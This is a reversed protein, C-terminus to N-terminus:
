ACCLESDGAIIIASATHCGNVFPHMDETVFNSFEHIEPSVRLYIIKIMFEYLLNCNTDRIPLVFRQVSITKHHDFHM